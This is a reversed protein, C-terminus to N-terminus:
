FIMMQKIIEFAIGMYKAGGVSFVIIAVRAMWGLKMMDSLAKMNLYKRIANKSM